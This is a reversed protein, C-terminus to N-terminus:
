SGRELLKAVGAGVAAALFPRALAVRNEVIAQNCGRRLLHARFDELKTGLDGGRSHTLIWYVDELAQVGIPQARGTKAPAPPAPPAPPPPAPDGSTGPSDSAYGPVTIVLKDRSDLASYRPTPPAHAERALRAAQRLRELLPSAKGSKHHKVSV